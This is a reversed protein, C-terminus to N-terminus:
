LPQGHRHKLLHIPTQRQDEFNRISPFVHSSHKRAAIPSKVSSVLSSTPRKPTSPASMSRFNNQPHVFGKGEGLMVFSMGFPGVNGCFVPDLKLKEGWVSSERRLEQQFCAITLGHASFKFGPRGIILSNILHSQTVLGPMLCIAPGPRSSLRLKRGELVLLNPDARPIYIFQGYTTFGNILAVLNKVDNYQMTKAIVSFDIFACTNDEDFQHNSPYPAIAFYK